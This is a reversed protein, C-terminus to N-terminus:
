ACTESVSFRVVRVSQIQNTQPTQQGLPKMSSLFSARRDLASDAVDVSYILPPGVRGDLDQVLLDETPDMNPSNKRNGM